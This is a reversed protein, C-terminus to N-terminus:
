RAIIFSVARNRMRSEIELSSQGCNLGPSVQRQRECISYLEGPAPEHNASRTSSLSNEQELSRTLLYKLPSGSVGTNVALPLLNQKFFLLYNASREYNRRTLPPRFKARDKLAPFM